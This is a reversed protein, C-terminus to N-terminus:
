QCEETTYTEGPRCEYTPNEGHSQVAGLLLLLVLAGIMVGFVSIVVERTSREVREDDGWYRM